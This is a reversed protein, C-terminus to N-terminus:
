ETCLVKLTIQPSINLTNSYVSFVCKIYVCLSYIKETLEEHKHILQECKYTKPNGEPRDHPRDDVYLDDEVPYGDFNHFQFIQIISQM